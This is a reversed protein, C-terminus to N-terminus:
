LPLNMQICVKYPLSDISNYDKLKQNVWYVVHTAWEKVYYRKEIFYTGPPIYWFISFGTLMQKEVIEHIQYILSKKVQIIWLGCMVSYTTNNFFHTLFAFPIEGKLLHSARDRNHDVWLSRFNFIANPFQLSFLYVFVWKIWNKQRCVYTMSFIYVNISLLKSKKELNFEQYYIM